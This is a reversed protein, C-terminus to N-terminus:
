RRDETPSLVSPVTRDGAGNARCKVLNFLSAQKQLIFFLITQLEQKKRRLRRSGFM